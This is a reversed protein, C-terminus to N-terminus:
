NSALLNDAPTFAGPTVSLILTYRDPEELLTVEVQSDGYTGFADVLADSGADAGMEMGMDAMEQLMSGCFQCQDLNALRRTNDCDYPFLFYYTFGELRDGNYEARASVEPSVGSYSLRYGDASDLWLGGEDATLVYGLSDAAANVANVNYDAPILAYVKTLMDELSVQIGEPSPACPDQQRDAAFTSSFCGFLAALLLALRPFTYKM